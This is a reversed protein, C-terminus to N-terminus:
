RYRVQMFFTPKNTWPAADCKTPTSVYKVPLYFWKQRQVEGKIVIMTPLTPSTANGSIFDVWHEDPKAM